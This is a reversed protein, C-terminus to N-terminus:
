PREVSQDMWLDRSDLLFVIKSRKKKVNVTELVKRVGSNRNHSGTHM